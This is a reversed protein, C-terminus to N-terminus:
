TTTERQRNDDASQTDSGPWFVFTATGATAGVICLFLFGLWHVIEFMRPESTKGDGVLSFAKAIYAGCWNGLVCGIMTSFFAAVLKFMSKHSSLPPSVVSSCQKSFFRHIDNHPALLSTYLYANMALEFKEQAEFAHARQALLRDWFQPQNSTCNEAIKNEM